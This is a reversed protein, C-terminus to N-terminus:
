FCRIVREHEGICRLSVFDHNGIVTEFKLRILSGKLNEIKERLCLDLCVGLLDGYKLTKFFEIREEM